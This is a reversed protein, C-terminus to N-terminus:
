RAGVARLASALNDAAGAMFPNTLETARQVADQKMMERAADILQDFGDRGDAGPTRLADWLACEEDSAPRCGGEHWQLVRIGSREEILFRLAPADPMSTRLAAEIARLAIGPLGGLEIGYRLDRAIHVYGSLDMEAALLERAQQPLDTM